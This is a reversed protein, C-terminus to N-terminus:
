VHEAPAALRKPDRKGRNGGVARADIGGFGEDREGGLLAGGGDLRSRDRGDGLGDDFFGGGGSLGSRGRRFRSALRLWSRRGWRRACRASFTLFSSRSLCTVPLAAGPRAM